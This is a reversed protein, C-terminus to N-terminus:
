SSAFLSVKIEEPNRKVGGKRKKSYDAKKKEGAAAGGVTVGAAVMQKLKMENKLKEERQAKTLYTGDRKQQEIKEREKQKKLAKAEDKRKAEEAELREEEEIRAKEEAEIRAREEAAKKLAEQQKQLKLLAPSLKKAKGGAVPEPVALEAAKAIPAVDVKAAPAGTAKKKAANEKKRQKEREKRAKEKQAKTMVKGDAGTEEEDDVDDKEVGGKGKGKKDPLSFEDDISGEVPAKESLDEIAKNKKQKKRMLAMLGTAPVEDDAEAEPEQEPEPETVPAEKTEVATAAPITEGLDAEWDDNQKKSGKKKPAM